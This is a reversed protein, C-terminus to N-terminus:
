FCRLFTFYQFSAAEHLALGTLACCKSAALRELLVGHSLWRCKNVHSGVFTIPISIVPKLCFCYPSFNALLWAESVCPQPSSAEWQGVVEAMIAVRIICCCSCCCVAMSSELPQQALFTCEQFAIFIWLLMNLLVFCVWCVFMFDLWWCVGFWVVWLWPVAAWLLLEFCWSM